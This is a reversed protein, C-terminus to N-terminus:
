GWQVFRATSIHHKFPKAAPTLQFANIVVWAEGIDDYRDGDNEIDHYIYQIDLKTKKKFDDVLKNHLTNIEDVVSEDDLQSNDQITNAVEYEGYKEILKRFEALLEPCKSKVVSEDIITVSAPYYGMGM